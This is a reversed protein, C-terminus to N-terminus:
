GLDLDARILIALLHLHNIMVLELKRDGLRKLNASAKALDSRADSIKARTDLIQQRVTESREILQAEIEKAERLEVEAEERLRARRAHETAIIQDQERRQRARHSDHHAKDERKISKSSGFWSTLGDM